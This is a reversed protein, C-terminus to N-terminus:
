ACLSFTHMFIKFNCIYIYTYIHVQSDSDISAKKGINKDVNKDSEKVILKPSNSGKLFSGVIKIQNPLKEIQAHEKKIIESINLVKDKGIEKEIEELLLKISDSFVNKSEFLSATQIQIDVNSHNLAQIILKKYSSFLDYNIM